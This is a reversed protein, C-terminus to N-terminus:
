EASKNTFIPSTGSSGGSREPIYGESTQQADLQIKAPDLEGAPTLDNQDVEM